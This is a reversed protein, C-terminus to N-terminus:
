WRSREHFVQLAEDDEKILGQLICRFMHGKQYFGHCLSFILSGFSIKCKIALCKEQVDILLWMRLGDCRVISVLFKSNLQGGLLLVVDLFKIIGKLM